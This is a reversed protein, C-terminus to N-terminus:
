STQAPISVRVLVSCLGNTNQEPFKERHGHTQPEEGVKEEILKLTDPKIHCDKIWTPKLKTCPSLFPDVQKWEPSTGHTSIPHLNRLRDWLVWLFCWKWTSQCKWSIPNSTLLVFCTGWYRCYQSWLYGPVWSSPWYKRLDLHFQQVM